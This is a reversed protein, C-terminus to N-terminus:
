SLLCIGQTLIIPVYICLSAALPHGSPFSFITSISLTLVLNGERFFESQFSSVSRNCSLSCPSPLPSSICVSKWFYFSAVVSSVAFYNFLFNVRYTVEESLRLMQKTNSSLSLLWRRIPPSMLDEDLCCCTDLSGTLISVVLGVVITVLFGLLSYWLYSLKYLQIWWRFLFFCWHWYESLTAHCSLIVIFDCFLIFSKLFKFLNEISLREIRKLVAMLICHYCCALRACVLHQTYLEQAGSSPCLFWGFCISCQCYYLINYLSADQQNYKFSYMLSARDCSCWISLRERKSEKYTRLVM